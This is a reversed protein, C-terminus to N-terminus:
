WRYRIRKESRYRTGKWDIWLIIKYDILAELRIIRGMKAKKVKGKCGSDSKRQIFSNERLKEVLPNRREM